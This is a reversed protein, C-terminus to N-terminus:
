TITPSRLALPICIRSFRYNKAYLYNPRDYKLFKISASKYAINVAAMKSKLIAAM